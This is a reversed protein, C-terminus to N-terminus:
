ITQSLALILIVAAVAFAFVSRKSLTFWTKWEVLAFASYPILLAVLPIRYRIQFHTLIFIGFSYALYLLVLLKAANARSFILGVAALVLLAIVYGGAFVRLGRRAIVPFNDQQAFPTLRSNLNFFAAADSTKLTLWHLPDLGIIYLAVRTAYDARAAPPQEAILKLAEGDTRPIKLNGKPKQRLAPNADLMAVRAALNDKVLNYEGSTSILVFRNEIQWNRITWPTLIILVGALFFVSRMIALKYQPSTVLWFWLPMLFLIFYGLLERTLAALGLCTGALLLTFFSKTERFGLLLYIGCGSLFLFLIESFFSRTLEIAEPYLAYFLTALISVRTKHFLRQTIAFLLAINATDLLSQAIGILFRTDGLLRFCLALFAPYLPPRFIETYQPLGKLLKYALQSYAIEDRVIPMEAWRTLVMMRLAFGILLVTLLGYTQWLGRLSNKELNM